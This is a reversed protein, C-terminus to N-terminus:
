DLQAEPHRTLPPLRVFIITVVTFVMLTQGQRGTEKAQETMIQLQDATAKSSKAALKTQKATDTAQKRSDM